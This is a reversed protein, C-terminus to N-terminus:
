LSGGTLAEIAAHAKHYTSLARILRTDLRLRKELMDITSFLDGGSQVSASALDFMHEIKPISQETIVRYVTHAQKMKEHEVAIRAAVKNSMDDSQAKKVLLNYREREELAKERGYIPLEAAIGISFYDEFADRYFYGVQVVPDPYLLLESEDLAAKAADVEKARAILAHNHELANLYSSSGKLTEMELSLELSEVPTAALYGLRAYANQIRQLHESKQIKLESLTLEASMIGMHHGSKGSTATYTQHLGINREALEEYRCIIDYLSQHEWLTYAETKIAAVLNVRAEELTAGLAAKSANAQAERADLKGFFPLKQKLTLSSFQMPEIDRKMPEATQIDNINLALQPNSISGALEVESRIAAIRQEIAELSPNSALAHEIISQLTAAHLSVGLVLLALLRKM